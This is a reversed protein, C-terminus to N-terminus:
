TDMPGTFFEGTDDEHVGDVTQLVEADTAQVGKMAGTDEVQLNPLEAPDVMEPEPAGDPVQAAEAEGPDEVHETVQAEVREEIQM